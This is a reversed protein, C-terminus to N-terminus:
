VRVIGTLLLQMLGKKEEQKAELLKNLLEIEKDATSLIDAIAKQESLPPILLKFKKVQSSYIHIITIGQAFKALEAKGVSNFYYSLFDSNIIEDKGRFVMIDGGLIVNDRNLSSPSILSLADVTTSTPFLLDGTMGIISKDNKKDTRNEIENIVETYLTYLEGYLICKYKGTKTIDKKALNRGNFFKGIDGLKMEEWEGHFGPLRTEGTLLKQMLGKKQVEKEKIFKEIIEIAKDWTSLINAIEEQELISPTKISISKFERKSLNPPDTGFIRVEIDYITKKYNLLYELFNNNSKNKLSVVKGVRQNLLAPEDKKSMKALKLKDGLIPRTLAMVIDNKKLIYDSFKEEFEIPLFSKENWKISGLGVNAIKLWKIGNNQADKSKFSYGNFLDAIKGLKQVEWDDPIIGVKTKKYGEPIIGEQIKRRREKIETNM